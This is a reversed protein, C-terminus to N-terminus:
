MFPEKLDNPKICRVYHPTTSNLTDMLMQLSQRFQRGCISDVLAFCFMINFVCLVPIHWFIFHAMLSHFFSVQFGVTLKHERHAKKGSRISGNAVSVNGQQQFLEAVLESQCVCSCVCM